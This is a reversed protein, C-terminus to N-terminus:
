KFLFYNGKKRCYPCKNTHVSKFYKSLCKIHFVGVCYECKFLYNDEELECSNEFCINCSNEGVKNNNKYSNIINTYKKESDNSLLTNFMKPIFPSYPIILSDNNELLLFSIVNKLNNKIAYYLANKEKENLDHIHVNLNKNYKLKIIQIARKENKNKCCIILPTNDYFDTINLADCNINEANLMIKIVSDMNKLCAYYLANYKKYHDYKSNKSIFTIKNNNLEYLKLAINTLGSKCSYYFASNIDNNDKLDINKFKLIELASEELKNDCIVELISMKKGKEIINIDINKYKLLKSIGYVMKYYACWYLPNNVNVNLYEINLKYNELIKYVVEHMNNKCAYGLARELIHSYDENKKNKVIYKKFDSHSLIQLAQNNLKNKCCIILLHIKANPDDENFINIEIDKHALLYASSEVLSNECCILLASENAKNKANIDTHDFYTLLHYVLKDMKKMCALMLINCNDYKKYNTHKSSSFYSFLHKNNIKDTEVSEEDSYEEINSVCKYNDINNNLENIHQTIFEPQNQMIHNELLQQINMNDSFNINLTGNQNQNINANNHPQYIFNGSQFIINGSVTESIIINGNEDEDNSESKSENLLQVNINGHFDDENSSKYSSSSCSSSSSSSSSSSKKSFHKKKNLNELKENLLYSEEIHALHLNKQYINNKISKILNKEYKKSNYKYNIDFYPSDLLLIIDNESFLEHIIAQHLHSNFLEKLNSKNNDKLFFLLHFYHTLVYINKKKYEDRKFFDCM